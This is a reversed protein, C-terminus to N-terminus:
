LRHEIRKFEAENIETYFLIKTQVDECENDAIVKLLWEFIDGAIGVNEFEWFNGALKYRRWAYSVFWYQMM